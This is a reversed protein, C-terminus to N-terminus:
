IEQLDHGNLKGKGQNNEGKKRKNVKTINIFCVSLRVYRYEGQM